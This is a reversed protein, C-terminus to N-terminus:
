EITRKNNHNQFHYIVFGENEDIMIQTSLSAQSAGEEIECNLVLQKAQANGPQVVIALAAFASTFGLAIAFLVSRAPRIPKM